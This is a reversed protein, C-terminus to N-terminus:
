PLNKGPQPRDPQSTQCQPCSLAVTALDIQLLHAPQLLQVVTKVVAVAVLRNALADVEIVERLCQVQQPPPPPIGWRGTQRLPPLPALSRGSQVEELP